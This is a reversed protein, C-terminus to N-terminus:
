LGPEASVELTMDAGAFDPVDESPKPEEGHALQVPQWYVGRYQCSELLTVQEQLCEVQRQLVEVTVHMARNARQSDTLARESSSARTVFSDVMDALLKGM